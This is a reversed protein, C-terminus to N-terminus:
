VRRQLRKGSPCNTRFDLDVLIWFGCALSVVRGWFDLRKLTEDLRKVCCGFLVLIGLSDLEFVELERKGFSVFWPSNCALRNNNSMYKESRDSQLWGGETM